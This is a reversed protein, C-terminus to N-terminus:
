QNLDFSNNLWIIIFCFFLLRNKKIVEYITELDQKDPTSYRRIRDNTTFNLTNVPAFLTNRRDYTMILGISLINHYINSLFDSTEGFSPPRIYISM